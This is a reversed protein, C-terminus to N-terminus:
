CPATNTSIFVRHITSFQTTANMGPSICQGNGSSNYVWVRVACNNHYGLIQTIDTPYSKGHTCQFDTSGPNVGVWDVVFNNTGAWAPASVAATLGGGLMVAAIMIWLRKM